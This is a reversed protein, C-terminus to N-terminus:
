VQHVPFYVIDDLIWILVRGIVQDPKSIYLLNVFRAIPAQYLPYESLM